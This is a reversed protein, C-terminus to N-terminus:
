LLPRAPCGGGVHLAPDGPTQVAPGLAAAPDGEHPREGSRRNPGSPVSDIFGFVCNPFVVDPRGGPVAPASGEPAGRGPGGRPLGAGLVGQAPHGPDRASPQTAACRSCWPSAPSGCPTAAPCAPHVPNGRFGCVTAAPCAPHMPDGRISSETFHSREGGVQRKEELYFDPAHCGAQSSARFGQLSQQVCLGGRGGGRGRRRRTSPSM